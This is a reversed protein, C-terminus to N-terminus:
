FPFGVSLHLTGAPDALRPNLNRGYELRVPGILTQYRLGVGISYLQENFPYDELRAAQGLADVFVIASWSKTLAQEFEVNLLLYSKAGIFAGDSGRPAAEGDQFGRLSSDGGPYFRKNIPLEADNGAGETLVMGHVMGAHIWRGRGWETHYSGGLELRQYDVEGGLTRAALEVQGFWRYGRRPRLPNDRRDRTLAFDLSAVITQEEDIARTTLENDANRLSQYTYSVRGDAGLWPIPRRLTVSGGFEQRQFAVEERQLGFLRVSGDLQEGFLEPV